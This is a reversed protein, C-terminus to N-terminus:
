EPAIRELEYGADELLEVVSREGVLHGAGVAIFPTGRSLLDEIGSVWNENREYLFAEEAGEPSHEWTAPDVLNQELTEADGSLYAELGELAVESLRDYDDLYAVLSDVTIYRQLLDLQFDVEELYEVELGHEEARSQLTLDMPPTMPLPKVAVAMAAAAADMQDLGQAQLSGVISELETFAEEGIEDSLTPQGDDRLLAGASSLDGVDAEAVFIDSSELSDWVVDPLSAEADVGLHMTGFLWGHDEGDASEVRWLFPETIAPADDAEAEDGNAALPDDEDEEGDGEAREEGDDAAGEQETDTADDRDCGGAVLAALSALLASRTLIQVWTAMVRANGCNDANSYPKRSRAAGGAGQPQPAGPNRRM